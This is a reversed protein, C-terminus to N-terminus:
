KCEALVLDNSGVFDNFSDKTLATVASDGEAFAVAATSALAALVQKVQM